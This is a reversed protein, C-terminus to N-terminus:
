GHMIHVQDDDLKEISPLARAAKIKRAIRKIRKKRKKRSLRNMLISIKIWLKKRNKIQMIISYGTQVLQSLIAPIIILWGILILTSDKATKEMIIFALIMCKMMLLLVEEIVTAYTLGTDLFVTRVGYKEVFLSIVGLQYVILILIQTYPNFDFFVSVYALVFGRVTVTYFYYKAYTETNLTEWLTGYQQIHMLFQYRSKPFYKILGFMKLFGWFFCFLTAVALITSFTSVSSSFVSSYIQIFTGTIVPLSLTMAQRILGNWRLKNNAFECLIRLLTMQPSFRLYRLLLSAVTLAVAVLIIQLVAQGINKVFDPQYNLTFYKQPMIRFLYEDTTSNSSSSSSGSSVLIDYNALSELYVQTHRLYNVNLYILYYTYQSDPMSTWLATLGGGLVMSFISVIFLLFAVQSAGDLTSTVKQVTASLFTIRPITFTTSIDINLPSYTVDATLDSEYSTLLTFNIQFTGTGLKTIKYVYDDNVTLGPVSFTLTDNGDAVLGQRPVVKVSLIQGNLISKIAQGTLSYDNMPLCFYGVWENCDYYDLCASGGPGCYTCQVAGCRPPDCIDQSLKSSPVLPSKCDSMCTNNFHLYPTSLTCLPDCTQFLGHPTLTKLFFPYSCTSSGCSNNVYYYLETGNQCPYECIKYGGYPILQLPYDCTMSACQSDYFFIQTSSSCPFHCFYRGYTTDFTSNFRPDCSDSCTGDDYLYQNWKCPFTCYGYKGNLSQSKILGSSLNCYVCTSNYLYLPPLCYSCSSASPSFCMFCSSACSKCADGTFFYSDKCRYCQTNSSGYCTECSTDCPLCSSSSSDWYYRTQCLAQNPLYFVTPQSISSSTCKTKNAPGPNFSCNTLTGLDPQTFSVACTPSTASLATTTTICTGYNTCNMMTMNYILNTCNTQNVMISSCDTLNGGTCNTYNYTCNTPDFPDCSVATSCNTYNNNTCNNCQYYDLTTNTQTCNTTTIKAEGTIDVLVQHDDSRTASNGFLLNVDRFGFSGYQVMSKRKNVITVNLTDATHLLTGYIRMQVDNYSSSGCISQNSAAYSFNQANNIFGVSNNDLYVDINDGIDWYDIIIFHISYKIMNHSPLHEYIRTISSNQAPFVSYLGLLYYSGCQFTKKNNPTGASTTWRTVDTTFDSDTSNLDLIQYGIYPPSPFLLRPNGNFLFPTSPTFLTILFLLLSPCRPAFIM